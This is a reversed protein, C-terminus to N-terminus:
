SNSGPIILDQSSPRQVECAPRVIKWQGAKKELLYTTAGDGNYLELGPQWEQWAAGPQLPKRRSAAASVNVQGRWELQNLKDAETLPDSSIKLSVSRAEILSRPSMSDPGGTGIIGYWSEGRYAWMTTFHQWAKDGAEKGLPPVSATPTASAEAAMARKDFCTNFATATLTLATITLLLNPKNM